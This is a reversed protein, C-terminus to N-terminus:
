LPSILLFHHRLWWKRRMEGSKSETETTSSTSVLVGLCYINKTAGVAFAVDGWVGPKLASVRPAIVTPLIQRLRGLLFSDHLRPSHVKQALLQVTITPTNCAVQM